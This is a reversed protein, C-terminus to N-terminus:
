RRRRRLGALGALALTAATGPAPVVEGRIWFSVTGGFDVTPNGGTITNFTQVRAWRTPDADVFQLNMEYSQAGTRAMAATAASSGTGILNAATSGSFGPDRFIHEAGLVVSEWGDTFNPQGPGTLTLDDIHLRLPATLGDTNRLRLHELVGRTGDWMSNASIGAFALLQANSLNFSVQQWSGNLSVINADRDVWEIGGDTGGDQGLGVVSGTERVGISVAISQAAAHGAAAGGVIVLVLANKLSTKM